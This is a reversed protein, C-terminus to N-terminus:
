RTSRTPRRPTPLNPPSADQPVLRFSQDVVSARINRAVKGNWIELPPTALLNGAPMAIWEPCCLHVDGNEVVYFQEFPRPCYM